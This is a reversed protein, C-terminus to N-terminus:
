FRGESLRESDSHISKVWTSLVSSPSFSDKLLPKKTFMDVDINLDHREHKESVDVFPLADPALDINLTRTQAYVQYTYGIDGNDVEVRYHPSVNVPNIGFFTSEPIKVLNYDRCRATAEVITKCEFTFVIRLGVRNLKGFRLNSSVINYFKEVQSLLDKQNGLPMHDTFSARDLLVNLIYRNEASFSIANPSANQNKLDVFNRDLEVSIAGARDWITYCPDYRVEFILQRRKFQSFAPKQVVSSVIFWTRKHVVSPWIEVASHAVLRWVSAGGAQSGGGEGRVGM